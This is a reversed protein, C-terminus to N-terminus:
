AKQKEAVDPHGADNNNQTNRKNVTDAAPKQAPRGFPRYANAVQQLVRRSPKSYPPRV